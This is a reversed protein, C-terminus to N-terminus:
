DSPQVGLMPWSDMPNQVAVKLTFFYNLLIIEIIRKAGYSLHRHFEHLVVPFVGLLAWKCDSHSLYKNGLESNFFVTM